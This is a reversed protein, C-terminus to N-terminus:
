KKLMEDLPRFIADYKYGPIEYAWNSVKAAITKAEEEVKPTSEAPKAETKAEGEGKGPEDKATEDAATKVAFQEALAADYSTTLTVYHTEDQEYGTLQVVLGDFTKYTAQASPKDTAIDAKPKVDDLTLSVLATALGNAASSSSLEKGKPLPEVKFDADARSSKAATYPKQNGITVTASQVRDASVNIIDKDLWDRPESSASLQENVLWSKSEGARRVYSSKTGPGDKGVILNVPTAPGELEIRIGKAERSSVDEVSLAAFKEPDSTKEELIKANSLARVLNRAKAEAIPYGNRETLTWGGGNRVVEVAREDGAKFVRIAKVSEAQAKLDPYLLDNVGRPTTATRNALSVAVIVAVVAVAALVLLRRPNM